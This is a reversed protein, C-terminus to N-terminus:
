LDEYNWGFEKTLKQKVLLNPQKYTGIYEFGLPANISILVCNDGHLKAKGNNIDALDSNYIRPQKTYFSLNKM